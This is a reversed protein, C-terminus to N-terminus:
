TINGTCVAHTHAWDHGVRGGWPSYGALSRQGHFEGPLFGPIPQWKRRWLIKGVWPDFGCRKCRRYQCTSEKGSAVGPFSSPGWSTCIKGRNGQWCYPSRNVKKKGMSIIITTYKSNQFFHNNSYVKFEWFEIPTIFRDWLLPHFPPFSLFLFSPLFSSGGGLNWISNILM